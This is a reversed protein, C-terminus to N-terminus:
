ARLVSQRVFDARRLAFNRIQQVKDDVDWRRYPQKPDGDMSSRLESLRTHLTTDLWGGAGGALDAVRAMEARYHKEFESRSFLRRTLVNRYVDNFIPREPHEFSTNRDWPIFTFRGDRASRYLFYNNIGWTGLIGDREDYFNEVALYTLFKAPDMTRSLAATWGDDPANNIVNIWNAVAAPDANKNKAEFPDPVFMAPDKSYAEWRYEWTWKYEYLDGEKEGFRSELFRKDVPESIGYVGWYEGNIFLRTHTHRPAAVGAKEFLGYALYDRVMTADQYFNILAFSNLGLFPTTDKKKFSVKLGPKVPNRSGLGRSRVKMEATHGNWEVRGPYWKNERFNDRLKQWDARDMDIRVDQILRANLFEDVPAKGAANSQPTLNTQAAVPAAATALTPIFNRRLM